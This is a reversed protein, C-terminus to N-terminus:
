SVSFQDVGVTFSQQQLLALKVPKAQDSVNLVIGGPEFGGFTLIPAKLATTTGLMARVVYRHGPGSPPIQYGNFSLVLRGDSADALALANFTGDSSGDGRITGAAVVAYPDGPPSAPVDSYAPQPSVGPPPLLRLMWEQVVRLDVLYPRAEESVVIPDNSSVQWTGSGLERTLPVDLEALLLADPDPPLPRSPAGEAASDLALWDPRWMPRLETVWLRLATRIAAALDSARIPITGPPSDDLLFDSPPSPFDPPSGTPEGPPSSPIIAARVAAALDDPSAGPDADPVLEIKSQLWAVFDRVASEERQDPPAFRLELRFSDALRSPATADEESRCPEGPIPVTDTLCEAFSLVVYLTLPGPPSAIRDDIDAGHAALWDNLPACQAPVVRVLRGRPTLAVGPSVQVEPGNTTVATQVQLGSVTGYGLLDRALWRDRESLWAHEQTFDDVGLVMGLVYNVRKTPDPPPSALTTASFGTM